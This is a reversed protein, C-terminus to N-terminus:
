EIDGWLLVMNHKLLHQTVRWVYVTVQWEGKDVVLKGQESSNVKYHACFLNCRLLSFLEKASGGLIGM